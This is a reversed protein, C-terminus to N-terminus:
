LNTFKDMEINCLEDAIENGRDGSHGKVWKWEINCSSALEDLEKWLDSNKVQKKSATKWGNKKWNNIWKTIGDIVYKSDTHLTIETRDKTSKLGKIVATLEMRNNTTMEEFGSMKIEQEGDVFVGWAGIGPNGRSGGDTYINVKKTM